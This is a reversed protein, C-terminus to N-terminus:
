EVYAEQLLTFTSAHCLHVKWTQCLAQHKRKKTKTYLLARFICDRILGAMHGPVCSMVIFVVRQHDICLGIFVMKTVSYLGPVKQYEDNIRNTQFIAM